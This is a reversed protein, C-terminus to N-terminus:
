KKQQPVPLAVATDPEAEDDYDYEEQYGAPYLYSEQFRFDETADKLFEAPIRTERFIKDKKYVRFFFNTGTNEMEIRKGYMPSYVNLKGKQLIGDKIEVMKQPKGNEYPIVTGTIYNADESNVIRFKNSISGDENYATGEYYKGDASLKKEHNLKKPTDDDGEYWQKESYLNGNKYVSETKGNFETGSFPEGDKYLLTNRLSGDKNYQNSKSIQEDGNVTTFFAEQRLKVEDYSEEKVRNGKSYTLKEIIEDDNFSFRTGELFDGNEGTAVGIQKGDPAYSTVTFSGNKSTLEQQLVGNKYYYKGDTVKNDNFVEISHIRMPAAFYDVRTGSYGNDNSILQGIYQGGKGYYKITANGAEDSTEEYRIGNRDDDYVVELRKGNEFISYYSNSDETKLRLTEGSLQEDDKFIIREYDKGNEGKTYSEGDRKGNKYSAYSSISGDEKYWTVKGEYIEDNPNDNHSFADMQLKGGKYFDRIHFLGNEKTTERYYVMKDQTTPQWDEDFYVKSQAFVAAPLAAMAAIIIQTKM